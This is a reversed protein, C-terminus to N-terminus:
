IYRTRLTRRHWHVRTHFDTSTVSWTHMHTHIRRLSPTCAHSVVRGLRLRQGWQWGIHGGKAVTYPKIRGVCVCVCKLLVLSVEFNGLCWVVLASISYTWHKCVTLLSVSASILSFIYSINPNLLQVFHRLPDLGAPELQLVALLLVGSTSPLGKDNLIANYKFYNSLDLLVFVDSCYYRRLTPPAAPEGNQGM